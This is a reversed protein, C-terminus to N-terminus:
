DQKGSAYHRAVSLDGVDTGNTTSAFPFKDIVNSIAGTWGGSGYGSESSSQGANGYRAQTIDCHDIANTDTAFPFKDVINYYSSPPTIGGATFGSATSSNCTHVHRAVSLDGVDTANANTAFPFKDIVNSIAGVWGGSSYGSVDSSPGVDQGGGYRAQTIDGVDTANANTAFPFKDIINYYSAPPTIGGSAYGSVTSSQGSHVHRAVTLDGVDTANAASAFPFKDIVNSIGPVWGGASYGSVDSSHGSSGYRNQTLDGYDTANANTAFPFRDIINYYSAPPTVGGCSFGFSTGYMPSTPTYFGYKSVIANATRIDILTIDLNLGYTILSSWNASANATKSVYSVTLTFFTGSDAISLVNYSISKTLDSPQMNNIDVGEYVVLPFSFGILPSIRDSQNSPTGSNTKHIKIITTTTHATSNTTFNTSNPNSSNDFVSSTLPLFIRYESAFTFGKVRLFSANTM